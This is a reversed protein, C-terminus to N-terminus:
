GTFEDFWGMATEFFLGPSTDFLGSDSEFLAQFDVEMIDGIEQLYGSTSGQPGTVQTPWTPTQATTTPIDNRSSSEEQNDGGSRSKFPFGDEAGSPEADNQCRKQYWNFWMQLMQLMIYFLSGMGQNGPELRQLSEVLRQLYSETNLDRKDIIGSCDSDPRSARIHIKILVVAAYAVRVFNFVPLSAIMEADYGLFIDFVNHASIICSALGNRQMPTLYQDKQTSELPQITEEMFPPRFDNINHGVHLVIEHLYLNIINFHSQLPAPNMMCRTLGASFQFEGQAKPPKRKQPLGGIQVRWQDLQQEFSRIIYQLKIDVSDVEASPDDMSFNHCIEESIHQGRVWQCLVKDSELANSGGELFEVCRDMYPGWRLMSPRRTTMAIRDRQTLLKRM